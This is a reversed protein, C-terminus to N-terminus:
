LDVGGVGSFINGEKGGLSSGRGGEREGGGVEGGGDGGWECVGGDGEIEIDGGGWLKVGGGSGGFDM